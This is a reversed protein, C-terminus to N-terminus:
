KFFTKSIKFLLRYNKRIVKMFLRIINPIDLGERHKILIDKMTEVFQNIDEDSLTLFVNKMRYFMSIPKGYTKFWTIVYISLDKETLTDNKLLPSLVSALLFGSELANMIGGGSLPNCHGAADGVLAVRHTVMKIKHGLLPVGGSISRQIQGNSFFRNAFIDLYYKAYKKSNNNFKVGLGVNFTEDNKPFVWAYGGPAIDNGLYFYMSKEKFFSHHPHYISYEYCSLVDPPSYSSYLNFWRGVQGEIGDAGILFRTQLTEITGSHNIQLSIANSQYSAYVASTCSMFEVGKQIARNVLFQDFKDRHIMLALSQLKGFAAVGNPAIVYGSTIDGAFWESSVPFYRELDEKLGAAEACRVPVGVTSRKELLLTKFGNEALYFATQSGAPGAGIIIIDYM